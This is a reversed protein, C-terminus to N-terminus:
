AVAAVVIFVVAAIRFVLMGYKRQQKASRQKTLRPAHQKVRAKSHRPTRRESSDLHMHICVWDAAAIRTAIFLGGGIRDRARLSHSSLPVLVVVVVVVLESM